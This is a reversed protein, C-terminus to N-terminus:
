LPEAMRTVITRTLRGIRRASKITKAFVKTKRSRKTNAPPQEDQDNEVQNNQIVPRPSVRTPTSSSRTQTCSFMEARLMAPGPSLDLPHIASPTYSAFHLAYNTSLGSRATPSSTTSPCIGAVAPLSEMETPIVAHCTPIFPSAGISAAHPREALRHACPM